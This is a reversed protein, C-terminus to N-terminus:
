TASGARTPGIAVDNLQEQAAILAGVPRDGFGLRVAELLSLHVRKGLAATLHREAAMDVFYRLDKEANALGFKLGDLRGDKVLGGAVMQFIGSNAGGASIVDYYSKLDVDAAAAACLAEAIMAAQGMALFNSLLKVKQGAGVPGVHFINECFAELVPRARAFDEDGGGVMANLRGAEAEVPTRALPADVVGVGRPGLAEALRQTTAPRVTSCDILLQGATMAAALGDDGFCIAEVDPSGTVCLIVIDSAGALDSHSAAASAGDAVLREVSSRSRGKVTVPFGKRLLNRGIGGGMLGPGILGIREAM